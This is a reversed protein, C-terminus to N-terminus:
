QLLSQQVQGELVAALPTTRAGGLLLVILLAAVLTTVAAGGGGGAGGTATARLVRKCPHVQACVQPPHEAPQHSSPLLRPRQQCRCPRLHAAPLFLRYPSYQCCATRTGSPPPVSLVPLPCYPRSIVPLVHLSSLRYPHWHKFPRYRSLAPRSLSPQQLPPPSSSPTGPDSSLLFLRYM